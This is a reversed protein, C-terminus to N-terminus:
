QALAKLIRDFDPFSINVCEWGEIVTEGEARLAAVALSMAIRHDGYSSVRSGRLRRPGRVMLGDTWEEIDAGMRRLQSAIAAIRDSEKVRLEGAGRIITEGEAQTAIVALLPLEDIMSPVREEDIEVAQLRAHRVRLDGRPEMSKEEYSEEMVMAGMSNIASLFGARTPNLGVDRLIVESGPLLLAAAIIYSASSLDGPIEVWRAELRSPRVSIAERDMSLDAGFYMGMRETHDRSGRDGRIVTQGRANLGALILASKVQASPVPLVYDIGHLEGGYIALPAKNGEERAYVRAGMATLPEVIRRMPRERISADGTIISLFPCAALVGSLLRITTGSNGAYLIDSPEQLGPYGRGKVVLTDDEWTWEVGLERLCGLTSMTDEARLFNKATTVGRALAGFIAARHSISKDGPVKVEGRLSTINPILKEM